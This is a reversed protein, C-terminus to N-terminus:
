YPKGERTSIIHYEFLDIRHSHFGLLLQTCVPEFGPLWQWNMERNLFFNNVSNKITTALATNIDTGM